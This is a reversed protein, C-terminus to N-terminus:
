LKLLAKQREAPTVRRWQRFAEAAVKLAADVDAAGSVPAHAIVEETVPDIIPSTRGEVTDFPAQLRWDHLRQAALDSNIEGRPGLQTKQTSGIRETLTTALYWAPSQFYEQSDTGTM